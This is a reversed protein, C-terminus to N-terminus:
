LKEVEMPKSAPIPKTVESDLGCVLSLFDAVTIPDGDNQKKYDQGAKRLKVAKRASGAFDLDCGADQSVHVRRSGAVTPIIGVVSIMALISVLVMVRNGKNKM